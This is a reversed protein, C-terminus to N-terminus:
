GSTRGEETGRVGRCSPIKCGRAPDEARGGYRSQERPREGTNVFYGAWNEECTLYTGWPTHGNACNNITGRTRTGEPSYQTVFHRSGRAPGGIECPSNATVRRNFRSDRVIKWEGGTQRAVEMVSLGHAAIEKRVDDPLRKGDVLVQGNPLLTGQEIYEHNMVLLGRENRSGFDLPFFHMGDHHQGVQKEQDAGSNTGDAKYAPADAFLPEGWAFAPRATYGPPVTVADLRNPAVAQFNPRKPLPLPLSKEGNLFFQPKGAAALAIPSAFLSGVAAALGGKLLSRRSRSALVDAFHANYSRNSDEYDFDQEGYPIPSAEQNMAPEKPM